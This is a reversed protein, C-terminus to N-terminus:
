RRGQSKRFGDRMLMETDEATAGEVDKSKKSRFLKVQFYVIILSLIVYGIAMSVFTVSASYQVTFAYLLNFVTPGFLMGLTEALSALNFMVNQDNPEINRVLLTRLAPSILFRFCGVLTAAYIVVTSQGFGVLCLSGVFSWIGIQTVGLEECPIMFFRSGFITGLSGCILTCAVFYGSRISTWCLPPSFAHIIVLNLYAYLVMMHVFLLFLIVLTRKQRARDSYILFTFMGERDDTQKSDGKGEPVDGLFLFIYVVNFVMAGFVCWYPPLFGTNSIWYGIGVQTLGAGLESVIGLIVLRMARDVNSTDEALFSNCLSMLAPFGGMIGQLFQAIFLYYLSSHNYVASLWTISSALYGINPILLASKVGFTKGCYTILPAAVVAPLLEAFNLALLWFASEAQIRDDLHKTLSVNGECVNEELLDLNVTRDEIRDGHDVAIKNVIYEARIVGLISYSIFFTFIVPEINIPGNEQPYDSDDFEDDSPIFEFGDDFVNSVKVPM